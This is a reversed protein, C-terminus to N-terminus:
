FDLNQSNDSQEDESWDPELNFSAFMEIDLPIITEPKPGEHSQIKNHVKNLEKLNLNLARVVQAMQRREPQKLVQDIGLEIFDCFTRMLRILSKQSSTMLIFDADSAHRKIMSYPSLMESSKKDESPNKKNPPRLTIIEDDSINPSPDYISHVVKNRIQTAEALPKTFAKSLGDKGVGLNQAFEIYLESKRDIRELLQGQTRFYYEAFITEEFVELTSGFKKIREKDDTDKDFLLAANSSLSKSAFVILRQTDSLRGFSIKRKEEYQVHGREPKLVEPNILASTLRFNAIKTLLILEQHYMVILGVWKAFRELKDDRQMQLKELNM